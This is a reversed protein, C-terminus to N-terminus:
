VSRPDPSPTLAVAVLLLVAAPFAGAALSLAGLVSWALFLAALEWAAATAGRSGTTCRRRLLAWITFSLLLPQATIALSAPGGYELLTEGNIAPAATVWVLLGVSYAFAAVTLGFAARGRWVARNMVVRYEETLPACPSKYLLKVDFSADALFRTLHGL